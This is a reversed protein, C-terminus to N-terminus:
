ERNILPIDDVTNDGDNHEDNNLHIKLIIIITKKKKECKKNCSKIFKGLTM